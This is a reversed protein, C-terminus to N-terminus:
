GLPLGDHDDPDERLDREEEDIARAHQRGHDLRAEKLQSAMTTGHAAHRLPKTTDSSSCLGGHTCAHNRAVGSCVTRAPRWFGAGLRKSRRCQRCTPLDMQSGGGGRGDRRRRALASARKSSRRSTTRKEHSVMERTTLNSPAHSSGGLGANMSAVGHLSTSWPKGREFRPKAKAKGDVRRQEDGGGSRLEDHTVHYLWLGPAGMAGGLTQVILFTARTAGYRLGDGGLGAGPSLRATMM